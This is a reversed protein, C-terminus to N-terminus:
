AAAEYHSLLESLPRPSPTSLNIGTVSILQRKFWVDFTAGSAAFRGLAQQM